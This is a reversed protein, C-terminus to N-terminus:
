ARNGKELAAIAKGRNGAQKWALALNLHASASKPRSPLVEKFLRLAQSPKGAALYRMGLAELVAPDRRPSSRYYRSLLRFGEKM